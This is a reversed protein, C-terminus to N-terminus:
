RLNLSESKFTINKQKIIVEKEGREVFGADIASFKNKKIIRLTKNVDKLSVFIAFDQGMNFTGYMEEDTLNAHKQIFNFVEQPKFVKEIVYTFAPKARMIKRMGHGTINSLYHVQIKEKQLDTILKAYINSSTLLSQGYTKGNTLKTLYGKSLKTSIKRALSLGNANIGNSKILIIRDGIKIGKDILINKSKKIIGIASGGLDVKTNEIIGSLGPTEGGGWVAGSLNTANAWGKIFDTMRKKDNMFNDGSSAWYANIVLPAAGVSILDNIIAAVTDQAIVAYYSKGTLRYMEDAVLNKTGLGEVVFAMHANGQKWVYASEGRSDSIESFGHKRLNKSTKKASDQAFKKIPDLTEYNVGSSKYTIKKKM